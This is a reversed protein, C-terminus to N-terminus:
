KSCGWRHLRHFRGSRNGGGLEGVANPYNLSSRDGTAPLATIPENAQGITVTPQGTDDRKRSRAHRYLIKRQERVPAERSSCSGTQCARSEGAKVFNSPLKGTVHDAKGEFIVNTRRAM